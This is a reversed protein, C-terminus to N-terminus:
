LVYVTRAVESITTTGEAVLRLAQERLPRMGQEIATRRVEEHSAANVTLARIEDTVRLVEYVGVRDFFGTRGCFNCGAGHMFGQGGVPEGGMETYFAM